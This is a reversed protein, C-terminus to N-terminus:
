QILDDFMQMTAIYELIQRRSGSKTSIKQVGFQRLEDQLITVSNANLKNYIVSLRASLPAKAEAELIALARWARELKSNSIEDGDSVWVLADAKKVLQLDEQRLSFDLDLIIFDYGGQWEATEILRIMDETTLELMNLAMKASAYYNVGHIDRRLCSEMKMSLNGKSSKLTYIIDSMDYSGQAQFFLDAGGTKELNLYLVKRGKQAHYIACAAAVTSSGVGGSVPQFAVIKAQGEGKNTKFNGKANEAHLALIQKYILDPKQYKRVIAYPQANDQNQDESLYAFSCKAPIKEPDIEKGGGALFVQIGKQELLEYINEAETFSLVELSDIYDVSFKEVLRKLYEKDSDYIALKIKM